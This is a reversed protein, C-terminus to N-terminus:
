VLDLDKLYKFLKKQATLSQQLEREKKGSRILQRIHQRDVNPCSDLLNELAEDGENLLRDRWHELRQFHQNDQLEKEDLRSIFHTVREEGEASMLKALRRSHRRLANHSKIRLSEDLADLIPQSFDFQQWLKPKLKMLRAGLAQLAQMERKLQGRSVLEEGEGEEEDHIEDFESM